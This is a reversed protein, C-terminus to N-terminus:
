SLFISECIGVESLGRTEMESLCGVIVSPVSGLLVEAGGAERELLFELEVGFVIYCGM